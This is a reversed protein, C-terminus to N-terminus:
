RGPRTACPWPWCRQTSRSEHQSPEEGRRPSQVSERGRALVWDVVDDAMHDQIGAYEPGFVLQLVHPGHAFPCASERGVLQPIASADPDDGFGISRRRRRDQQGRLISVSIPLLRACRPTAIACRRVDTIMRTSHPQLYFPRPPLKMVSKLGLSSIEC